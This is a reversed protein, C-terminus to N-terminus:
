EYHPREKPWEEGFGDEVMVEFVDKRKSALVSYVTGTTPYKAELSQRVREVEKMCNKVRVSEVPRGTNYYWGGEEPGGYLRDIEYVNVHVHEPHFEREAHFTRTYKQEKEERFLRM